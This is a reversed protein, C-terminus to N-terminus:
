KQENAIFFLINDNCNVEVKNKIAYNLTGSNMYALKKNKLEYKLGSTSILNDPKSSFISIYNNKLNKFIRNKEITYFIGSNTFINIKIKNIFKLIISFNGITHDIRKGDMGIIDLSSHKNKICWILIKELDNFNQDPLEIINGCYTQLKSKDVSDLDGIIFDPNIDFNLLYNASGDACFIKDYNKFITIFKNKKPLEGNLVLIIKEKKM